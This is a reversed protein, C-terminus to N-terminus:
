VLALELWCATRPREGEGQGAVGWPEGGLVPVWTSDQQPGLEEEPELGLGSGSGPGPGGSRTDGPRELWACEGGLESREGGAEALVCVNVCGYACVVDMCLCVNVRRCVRACTCVCLCM